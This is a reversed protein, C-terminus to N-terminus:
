PVTAGCSDGSFSEPKGHEYSADGAKADKDPASSSLLPVTFLSSSEPEDCNVVVAASASKRCVYQPSSVVDGCRDLTALSNCSTFCFSYAASRLSLLLSWVIRWCRVVM